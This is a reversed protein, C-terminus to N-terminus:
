LWDYEVQCSYSGVTILKRLYIFSELAMNGNTRIWTLVIVNMENRRTLSDATRRDTGKGRRGHKDREQLLPNLQPEKRASFCGNASGASQSIPLRDSAKWSPQNKNQTHTQASAAATSECWRVDAATQNDPDPPRRVKLGSSGTDRERQNVAQWYFRM